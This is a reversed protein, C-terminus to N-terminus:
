RNCNTDLYERAEYVGYQFAKQYCHCAMSVKGLRAAVKGKEFWTEGNLPDLDLAM